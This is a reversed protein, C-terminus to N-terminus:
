KPSSGEAAYLAVAHGVVVRCGPAIASRPCVLRAYASALQLNPSLVFHM